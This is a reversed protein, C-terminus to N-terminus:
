GCLSFSMDSACVNCLLSTTQGIVIREEPLLLFDFLLLAHLIGVIGHAAGLYLKSHCEWMLPWNHRRGLERGKVFLDTIIRRVMSSDILLGHASVFHLTFLLGARGYLTEDEASDKNAEYEALLEKFMTELYESVAKNQAVSRAFVLCVAVEGIRGIFFGHSGQSLLARVGNCRKVETKLVSIYDTLFQNGWSVAIKVSDVFEINGLPKELLHIVTYLVGVAGTYVSSNKKWKKESNIVFIGGDDDGSTTNENRRQTQPTSPGSVSRLLRPLVQDLTRNLIDTPSFLVPCQGVYAPSNHDFFEDVSVFHTM